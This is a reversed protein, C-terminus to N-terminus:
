YAQGIAGNPPRASTSLHKWPGMLSPNEATGGVMALYDHQVQGTPLQYRRVVRRNGPDKAFHVITGATLGGSWTGHRDREFNLVPM